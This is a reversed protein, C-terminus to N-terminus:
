RGLTISSHALVLDDLDFGKPDMWHKFSRRFILSATVQILGTTNGDIRFHFVSSDEGDAPIRNDSEIVTPRWHPAPYEFVFDRNRSGDPYLMLDKLIKAYAKGPRGAYNGEVLPGTGAWEPLKEGEILELDRGLNDTAEVLLILHRMPNGTPYHHGADINKVHTSVKLRGEEQSIQIELSISDRMFKDDKIGFNVHSALSSPNRLIGGKDEDAFRTMIGDPKMHCHQCHIGKEAYSSEAWEQFESYALVNWFQGHHCPACYLSEGYLPHYSDDGPFVDDLPGYFIQQGNEPRTFNYSLVGPLGGSEDFLASNIKHCFDCTIGEMAEPQVNIPDTNFATEMFAIPIHCATCNGESSPFDLKYGPGAPSKGHVDTGYFFSLFIPNIASKSHADQQWQEAVTPHCIQCPESENSQNPTVDRLGTLSPLWLYKPNDGQPIPKLTIVYRTQKKSIPTGGIFYGPYGATIYKAKFNKDIELTFRGQYDTKVSLDSGQLRVIAHGIPAGSECLVIGYFTPKKEPIGKSNDGNRKSTKVAAKIDEQFINREDAQIVTKSLLSGVPITKISLQSIYAQYFAVQAYLLQGLSTHTNVEQPTHYKTQWSCPFHQFKALAISSILITVIIIFLSPQVFKKILKIRFLVYM